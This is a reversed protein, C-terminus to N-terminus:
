KENRASIAEASIQGALKFLAKAMIKEPPMNAKRGVQEYFLAAADDVSIHYEKMKINEKETKTRIYKNALARSIIRSLKQSYKAQLM